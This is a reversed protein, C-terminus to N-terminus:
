DEFGPWPRSSIRTPDTTGPAEIAGIRFLEAVFEDSIEGPGTGAADRAERWTREGDLGAFFRFISKPAVISDFSSYGSLRVGREEHWFEAVSPVVIDPLVRAPRGQLTRLDVRGTNLASDALAAVEDDGARDVRDACFEFWRLWQPSSVPPTPPSGVAICFDALLSEIHALVRQVQAWVAAGQLGEEHKCFWTRCISSRAQWIGCALDGGVWYPCRLSPDRGFREGAVKTYHERWEPSPRIGWATVGVGTEIRARMVRASTGGDRLARGAYFNATSPHFTCCRGQPHFVWLSGEPEGAREAMMVCRGCDARTEDTWSLEDIEPLLVRFAAPLYAFASPPPGTVEGGDRIREPSERLFWTASTPLVFFNGLRAPALAFNKGHSAATRQDSVHM